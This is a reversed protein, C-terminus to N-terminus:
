WKIFPIKRLSWKLILIDIIFALCQPLKLCNLLWGTLSAFGTLAPTTGPQQVEQFKALMTTLIDQVGYLFLSYLGVALFGIFGVIWFTKYATWVTLVSASLWTVLRGFFIQM